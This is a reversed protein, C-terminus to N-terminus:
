PTLDYIPVCKTGEKKHNYPGELGIRILFRPDILYYRTAAAPDNWSREVQRYSAKMADVGSRSQRGVLYHSACAYTGNRLWSVMKNHHKMYGPSVPWGSKILKGNHKFMQRYRRVERVANWRELDWMDQRYRAITGTARGRKKSKERVLFNAMLAAAEKVLWAPPAIEEDACYDLAAAIGLERHAAMKQMSTLYRRHVDPLEDGPRPRRM